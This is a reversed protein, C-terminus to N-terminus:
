PWAADSLSPYRYLKGSSQSAVVWGIENSSVACVFSRQGFPDCAGHAYREAAITPEGRQCHHQAVPGDNEHEVVRALNRRLEDGSTNLQDDGTPRRQERVVEGQTRHFVGLRGRQSAFRM